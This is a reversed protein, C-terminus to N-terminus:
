KHRTSIRLIILPGPAGGEVVPFQRARRQGGRGFVGGHPLALVTCYVESENIGTHLTSKPPHPQVPDGQPESGELM